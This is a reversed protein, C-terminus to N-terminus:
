ISSKRTVEASFSFTKLFKLRIHEVLIQLLILEEKGLTVRLVSVMSTHNTIWKVDDSSDM